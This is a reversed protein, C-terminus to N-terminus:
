INIQQHNIHNSNPGDNAKQKNQYKTKQKGEWSKGRNGKERVEKPLSLYNKHNWKLNDM